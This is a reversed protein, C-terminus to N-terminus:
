LLMLSEEPDEEPDEEAGAAMAGAPAIRPDTLPGLGAEARAENLEELENNITSWMPHGPLYQGDRMLSEEVMQRQIRRDSAIVASRRGLPMINSKDVKGTDPSKKKKKNSPGLPAPSHVSRVATPATPLTCVFQDAAPIMPGAVTPICAVHPSEFAGFLICLLSPAKVKYTAGSFLACTNPAVQITITGSFRYMHHGLSNKAVVVGDLECGQRTEYQHPTMFNYSLMQTYANGIHIRKCSFFLPNLSDDVLATEDHLAVFADDDGWVEIEYPVGYTSPLESFPPITEPLPSVARFVSHKSHGGFRGLLLKLSLDVCVLSPTGKVPRAIAVHLKRNFYQSCDRYVLLFPEDSFDDAVPVPSEVSAYLSLRMGAPKGDARRLANLTYRQRNLNADGEFSATTDKEIIAADYPTRVDRGLYRFYKCTKTVQAFAAVGPATCNGHQDSIIKTMIHQVLEGAIEVLPCGAQAEAYAGVAAPGSMAIAIPRDALAPARIPCNVILSSM